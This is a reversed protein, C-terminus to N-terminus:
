YWRELNWIYTLIHYKDEEKKNVESQIISELDVWRMLVSEFAIRKMVSNLIGNCIHVLM